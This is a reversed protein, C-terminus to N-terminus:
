VGQSPFFGCLNRNVLVSFRTTSIYFRVWNIWKTGFGLKKLMMLLFVWSLHDYAKQVDLKCLFRLLKSRQRSEVCENAILLVDM